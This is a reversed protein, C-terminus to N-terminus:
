SLAGILENAVQADNFPLVRNGITQTTEHGKGAILLIDGPQALLLATKIAQKRDLVALTRSAAAADLGAEMDSIIQQPDETRPITFLAALGLAALLLVRNSISKSGPLRVSGAAGLMPPLDLFEM